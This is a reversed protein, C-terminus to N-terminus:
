AVEGVVAGAEGVGEGGHGGVGVGVCEILVIMCVWGGMWACLIWVRVGM